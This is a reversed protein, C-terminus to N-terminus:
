LESPILGFYIWHGYDEQQERSWETSWASVKTLIEDRVERITPWGGEVKLTLNLSYADEEDPVTSVLVVASRLQDGLLGLATRFIYNLVQGRFPTWLPLTDNPFHLLERVPAQFGLAQESSPLGHDVWVPPQLNAASQM